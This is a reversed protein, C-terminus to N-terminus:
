MDELCAVVPAFETEYNWADRIKARCKRGIEYREEPHEIFWLLEAAISTDDEPNCSRAYGPAVFTSTWEPLDTVLLPLGCAMYDFPKNSAGVMHRINIDDSSRPMLSLGIHAKSANCLLDDRLPVTGIYEILNPVGERAALDLLESVYGISGKTEYGAVRLRVAGKFRAAAIVLQPPLRSRNISGHYYVVLQEDKANFNRNKIEDRGPCNWVCFVPGTRGTMKLFIELREQQPIVCLEIKKALSARCAVAVKMFRSRSWNTNPADHEHYIMRVKTLKRLVWLVPLSLPDSAYIWDPRWFHAWWISWLLFFVYQLKQRRSGEEVLPLNKVRIKSHPPLALKQDGFADTGLMVVDWGRDALLRSSHAIPPYNAPDGFQLYLIRRTKM